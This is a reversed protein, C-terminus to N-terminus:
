VKGTILYRAYRMWTRFETDELDRSIEKWECDTVGETKSPVAAILAVRIKSHVDDIRKYDGPSDHVWVELWQQQQNAEPGLDSDSSNGLKYVVFPHSGPKPIEQLSPAAWVRTSVISTVATTNSITSYVWRRISM